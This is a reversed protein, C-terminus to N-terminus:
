NSWALSVSSTTSALGTPRPAMKVWFVLSLPFFITAYALRERDGTANSYNSATSKVGEKYVPIVRANKWDDPLVGQNISLNFIHTLSESIVSVNAKVLCAPIGDLGSAKKTPLTQIIKAIESDTFDTLEFTTEAPKIFSSFNLASQPIKEAM